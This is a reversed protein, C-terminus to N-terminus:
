DTVYRLGTIESTTQYFRKVDEQVRDIEEPDNQRGMFHREWLWGRLSDLNSILGIFNMQQEQDVLSLLHISYHMIDVSSTIDIFRESGNDNSDVWCETEIITNNNEDRLFHIM